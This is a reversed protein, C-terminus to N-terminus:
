RASPPAGDLWYRHIILWQEPHRRVFQEFVATLRDLMAQEDGDHDEPFIPPAIELRYGDGDGNGERVIFCPLLPARAARAVRAPWTMFPAWGDFFPRPASEAGADEGDFGVDGAVLLTGDRRLVDLMRLGLQLSPVGEVPIEEIGCRRRQRSRVREFIDMPDRRYVIAVPRHLRTLLMPGAEYNGMHLTIGIVGRGAARARHWHERGRMAEFLEPGTPLRRPALVLELTFRAFSALVERALGLREDDTSDSGLIHRANETLAARVEPALALMARAGLRGAAFLWAPPLVAAAVRALGVGIADPRLGGGNGPRPRRATM